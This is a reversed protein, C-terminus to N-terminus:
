DAQKLKVYHVEVEKVPVQKGMKAFVRSIKDSDLVGKKYHIISAILPNGRLAISYKGPSDFYQLVQQSYEKELLSLKETKAKLEALEAQIKVLETFPKSNFKSM